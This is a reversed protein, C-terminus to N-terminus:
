SRIDVGAQRAISRFAEWREGGIERRLVYWKADRVCLFEMSMRLVDKWNPGGDQTKSFEIVRRQIAAEIAESVPMQQNQVSKVCSCVELSGFPVSEDVLVMLMAQEWREGGVRAHGLVKIASMGIREDLVAVAIAEVTNIDSEWAEPWQSALEPICALSSLDGRQSLDQLRSRLGHGAHAHWVLWLAM